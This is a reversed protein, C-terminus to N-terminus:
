SYPHLPLHPEPNSNFNPHPNPHPDPDPSPNPIACVQMCLEKRLGELEALWARQRDRIDLLSRRQAPSLGLKGALAVWREADVGVIADGRCGGLLTTHHPAGSAAQLSPPLTTALRGGVTSLRTKVLGHM